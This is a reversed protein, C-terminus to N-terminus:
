SREEEVLRIKLEAQELLGQCHAAFRKGLEYQAVSQELSLKGSELQAVISELQQFAEEYSYEAFDDM